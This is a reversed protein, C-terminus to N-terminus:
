RDRLWLGGGLDHDAQACFESCTRADTPRLDAGCIVCPRLGPPDPPHLYYADEIAEAALDRRVEEETRTDWRHHQRHRM